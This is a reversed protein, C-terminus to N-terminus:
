LTDKIGQEKQQRKKRNKKIERSRDARQLVLILALMVGMSLSGKVLGNVASAGIVAHVFIDGAFLFLCVKKLIKFLQGDM